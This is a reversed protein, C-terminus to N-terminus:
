PTDVDSVKVDVHQRARSGPGPPRMFEPRSAMLGQRVAVLSVMALGVFVIGYILFLTVYVPVAALAAVPGVIPVGRILGVVATLGAFATFFVGTIALGLGVAGRLIPGWVLRAGLSGSPRSM